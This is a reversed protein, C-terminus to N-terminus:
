APAWIKTEDVEAGNVLFANAWEPQGDTSVNGASGYLGSAPASRQLRNTNAPAVGPQLSLLDLYSRGNLPMALIQTSRITTGTSTSVTQSRCPICQSHRDRDRQRSFRSISLGACRQRQSHDTSPERSSDIPATATLRLGRSFLSLALQGAADTKVTRTYGTAVQIVTVPRTAIVAGSKDRVYGPISGTVDAWLQLTSLLMGLSLCLWRLRRREM